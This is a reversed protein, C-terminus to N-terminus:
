PLTSPHASAPRLRRGGNAAREAELDYLSTVASVFADTDGADFVGSVPRHALNPAALTLKGSSYRNVEAVATSLPTNRFTLRGTTWGAVAPDAPGPASLGSATATLQQGPALVATRAAPDTASPAVEVKGDLLAIRVSGPARWVDFRTGLARVEALGADVVFPRSPDKAAEFVAQGRRLRVRREGATFALQVESDTNLRLRSGDPLTVVRQEGVRTEFRPQQPSRLVLLGGAAVALALVAGAIPLAGPRRARPRRGAVAPRRQFAAATAAALEPDAALAGAQTWAAEVEAYAAANEPAQRWARFAKLDDTRVSVRSLRAFWRAAEDRARAPARRHDQTM